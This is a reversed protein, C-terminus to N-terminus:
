SGCSKKKKDGKVEAYHVDVLSNNTVTKAQQQLFIGINQLRYADAHEVWYHLINNIFSVNKKKEQSHTQALVYLDSTDIRPTM